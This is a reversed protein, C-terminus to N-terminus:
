GASPASAAASQPGCTAAHVQETLASLQEAIAHIQVTLDTNRQLLEAQSQALEERHRAGAEENAQDTRTQAKQAIIVLAGTYFAVASFLLNLLIFPAPDFGKGKLLGHWSDDLFPIVHNVLVWGIIIVSSVVLFAVTGMGSAVAESVREMFSSGGAYPSGETKTKRRSHQYHLYHRLPDPRPHSQQDDQVTTATM